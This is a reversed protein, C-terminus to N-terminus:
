RRGVSVRIGLGRLTLVTLAIAAGIAAAVAGTAAIEELHKGGFLAVAAWPLALLLTAGSWASRKALRLVIAVALAVFPLTAIIPEVPWSWLFPDRFVAVNSRIAIPALFAFLSLGSAIAVWVTGRRDAAPRGIVVLVALMAFLAITTSSPRMWMQQWDAVIRAAISLPITAVVISRSTRTFGIMAAVFGLMWAGYIVIMPSAFHGFTAVGDFYPDVHRLGIAELQFSLVLALMAGMGLAVSAARYRVSAPVAIPARRVRAALGHMALDLLEGVRPQDRDEADARDLLTGIVSEANAERWPAPYWRLADRYRAELRSM